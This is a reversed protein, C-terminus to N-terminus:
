NIFYHAKFLKRAFRISLKEFKPNSDWTWCEILRTLFRSKTNILTLVIFLLVLYTCRKLNTKGMEMLDMLRGPTAIVIESGRELDRIQPGKPAGGFLCTSYLKSSKM